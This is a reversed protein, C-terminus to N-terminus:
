KRFVLGLSTGIVGHYNQIDLDAGKQLAELRFGEQGYYGQEPPDLLTLGSSEVLNKVDINCEPIAGKEPFMIDLTVILLGGKKLVRAMEMMMKGQLARDDTTQAASFEDGILQARCHELVSVSIVRDFTEADYSINEMGEVRYEIDLGYKKELRRDIGHWGVDEFPDIGCVEIGTDALFYQIPSRGCGADLVKLGPRLDLNQIIWPYEWYKNPGIPGAGVFSNLKAMINRYDPTSKQSLSAYSSKLVPAPLDSLEFPIRTYKKKLELSLKIRQLKEIVPGPLIKTLLTKM